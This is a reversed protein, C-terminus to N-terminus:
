EQTETDKFYEKLAKCTLPGFRFFKEQDASWAYVGTYNREIGDFDTEAMLCTQIFNEIGESSKLEVVYCLEPNDTQGDTGYMKFDLAKEYELCEEKSLFIKGDLSEYVIKM